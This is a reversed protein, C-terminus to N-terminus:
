YRTFRTCFIESLFIVRIEFNTTDTASSNENHATLESITRIYEYKGNEKTSYTFVKRCLDITVYTFDLTHFRMCIMQRTEKGLGNDDLNFGEVVLMEHKEEM